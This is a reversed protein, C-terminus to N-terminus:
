PAPRATLAAVIEALRAISSSEPLRLVCGGALELALGTLLTSPGTVQVPLFEPLKAQCRSTRPRRSKPQGPREDDRRALERRWFYFASEPLSEQRCFARVNLGSRAFREFTERWRRERDTAQTKKTMAMEEPFIAM